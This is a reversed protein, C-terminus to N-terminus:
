RQELGISSTNGGAEGQGPAIKQAIRRQLRVRARACDRCLVFSGYRVRNRAFSRECGECPGEDLGGLSELHETDAMSLRDLLDSALRYNQEDPLPEYDPDASPPLLDSM